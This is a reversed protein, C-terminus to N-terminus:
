AGAERPKELPLCLLVMLGAALAVLALWGDTM